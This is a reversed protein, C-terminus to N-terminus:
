IRGTLPVGLVKMATPWQRHPELTVGPRGLRARAAEITTVEIDTPLITGGCNDCRGCREAYPDDLQERLFRMRCQGTTIYDRMAQQEAIRVAAVKAYRDADYQWPQGTVEWGSQVRRVAGDVDL